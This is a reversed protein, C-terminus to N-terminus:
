GESAAATEYTSINAHLVLSAALETNSPMTSIANWSLYRRNSWSLLQDAAM